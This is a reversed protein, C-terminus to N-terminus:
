NNFYQPYVIKMVSLYHKARQLEQATESLKRDIAIWLDAVSTKLAYARAEKEVDGIDTQTEFDDSWKILIAKDESLTQILRVHYEALRQLHTSLDYQIEM